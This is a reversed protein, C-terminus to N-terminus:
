LRPSPIVNWAFHHLGTVTLTANSSTMFGVANTVAVSYLGADTLQVNTLTLTSNTGGSISNSGNFYWQYKLPATGTATV